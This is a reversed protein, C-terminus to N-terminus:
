PCNGSQPAAFPTHPPPHCRFLSGLSCFMNLLLPVNGSFVSVVCLPLWLLGWHGQILEAAQTGASGGQLKDISSNLSSFRYLTPAISSSTPSQVGTSLLTWMLVEETSFAELKSGLLSHKPNQFMGPVLNQLPKM